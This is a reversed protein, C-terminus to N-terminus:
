CAFANITPQLRASAICGNNVVLGDGNWVNVAYELLITAPKRAASCHGADILREIGHLVLAVMELVVETVAVV